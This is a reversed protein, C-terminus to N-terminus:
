KTAKSHSLHISIWLDSSCRFQADKGRRSVSLVGNITQCNRAHLSDVRWLLCFASGIMVGTIVWFWWFNRRGNQNTLYQIYVTTEILPVHVPLAPVVLELSPPRWAISLGAMTLELSVIYSTLHRCAMNMIVPCSPFVLSYGTLACIIDYLLLPVCLPHYSYHFKGWGSVKSSRDPAVSGGGNM